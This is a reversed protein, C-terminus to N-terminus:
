GDRRQSRTRCQTRSQYIPRRGSFFVHNLALSTWTSVITTDLTTPTCIITEYLVNKYRACHRDTLTSIDVRVRKNTRKKKQLFYRCSFTFRNSLVARRLHCRSVNNNRRRLKAAHRIERSRTRIADFGDFGGHMERDPRYSLSLAFVFKGNRDSTHHRGGNLRWVAADITRDHRNAARLRGSKGRNERGGAFAM